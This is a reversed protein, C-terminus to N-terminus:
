DAVFGNVSTDLKCAYGLGIFLGGFVTYGYYGFKFEAGYQRIFTAILSNTLQNNM